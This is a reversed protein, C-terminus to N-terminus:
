LMVYMLIALLIITKIRQFFHDFMLNWNLIISRTAGKYKVWPIYKLLRFNPTKEFLQFKWYHKNSPEKWNSLDIPGAINVATIGSKLLWYCQWNLINNNDGKYWGLLPHRELAGSKKAWDWTYWTMAGNSGNGKRTYELGFDNYWHAIYDIRNNKNQFKLNPPPNQKFYKNYKPLDQVNFNYEKPPAINQIYYLFDDPLGTSKALSAGLLLNLLTLAILSHYSIPHLEMRGNLPVM